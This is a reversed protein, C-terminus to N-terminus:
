GRQPPDIVQQAPVKRVGNAIATVAALTALLLGETHTSITGALGGVFVTLAGLVSIYFESTHWYDRGDTNVKALARALAYFAAAAATLRVSTNYGVGDSVAATLWAAAVTLIMILGELRKFTSLDFPM